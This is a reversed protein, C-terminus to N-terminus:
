GSDSDWCGLRTNIIFSYPIAYGDIVVDQQCQPMTTPPDLSPISALDLFLLSSDMGQLEM